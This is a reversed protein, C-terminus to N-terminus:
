YWSATNSTRHSVLRNLADSFASTWAQIFKNGLQAACFSFDGVDRQCFSQMTSWGAILDRPLDVFFNGVFYIIANGIAYFIGPFLIAVVGLSILRTKLDRGFLNGHLWVDWLKKTLKKLINYVIFLGIITLLVYVLTAIDFPYM